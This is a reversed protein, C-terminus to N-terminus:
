HKQFGRKTAPANQVGVSAGHVKTHANRRTQMRTQPPLSTTDNRAFVEVNTTNRQSATYKALII